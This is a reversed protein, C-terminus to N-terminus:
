TRPAAGAHINTWHLADGHFPVPLAEAVRLDVCCNAAITTETLAKARHGCFAGNREFSGRVGLGKGDPICIVNDAEVARRSPSEGCKSVSSILHHTINRTSDKSLIM